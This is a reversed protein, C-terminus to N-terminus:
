WPWLRSLILMIVMLWFLIEPTVLRRAFTYYGAMIFAVPIALVANMEVSVAPVFIFAAVCLAIMWLFLEFTKRSRIKYTPMERILSFLAPLLNLGAVVLLIVLTRGWSFSPVADFLNNIITGTLDAMNGGTVYWVAYLVIWPLLAGIVTVTMERADPSRLILVGIIVLIIFWIAGAYFMGAASILLAADFFNFTMGNVRYASVMRWIGALILLAAPLAPNLVMAGPFLAYLLIYLLAPLYTRRPIFFISTNFRVMVIAVALMLVFSIIVSLLPSGELAKMILGWLPMPDGGSPETLQPPSIFYQGWLALAALSLLLVPGIGSGRFFKIM